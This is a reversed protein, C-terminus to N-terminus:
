RTLQLIVLWSVWASKMAGPCLVGARFQPMFTLTDDDGLAVLIISSM